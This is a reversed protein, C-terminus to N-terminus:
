IKPQIEVFNKFTLALAKRYEFDDDDPSLTSGTYTSTM